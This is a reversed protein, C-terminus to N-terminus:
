ISYTLIRSFITKTALSLIQCLFYTLYTILQKTISLIDNYFNRLMSILIEMANQMGTPVKKMNRTALFACLIIVAMIAWSTTVYSSVEIPGITFLAGGGHSASEAAYATIM